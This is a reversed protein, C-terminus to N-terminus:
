HGILPSFWVLDRMVVNGYAILGFYVCGILINPFTTHM